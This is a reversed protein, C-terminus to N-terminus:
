CRRWVDLEPCVCVCLVASSISQRAHPASSGPRAPLGRQAPLQLSREEGRRGCSASMMLAGHSAFMFVGHSAYILAGRSASMLAGGRTQGLFFCGDRSSEAAAKQPQTKGSSPHVNKLALMVKYPAFGRSEEGSLCQEEKM